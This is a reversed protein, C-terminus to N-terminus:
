CDGADREGFLSQPLTVMFDIERFLLLVLLAPILDKEFLRSQQTNDYMILAKHVCIPSSSLAPLPNHLQPHPANSSSYKSCVTSKSRM